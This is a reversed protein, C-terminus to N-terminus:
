RRARSARWSPGPALPLEIRLLMAAPSLGLALASERIPAPIDSLGSHTNRVIPLLSYLFLAVIAPLTGIGLLPLMFVLLALSPMTQVIGVAALVVQGLRRRRASLIGLPLAVAIAALLSVGVLLLHERTTRWLSPAAAGARCRRRDVGLRRQLWAAAAQRERRRELKVRANLAIMAPADIAGGATAAGRLGGPLRARADLRYVLVAQYDPFHHRDDALVRLHYARIEADTAYLDTVDLSGEALARYALDHELGRVDQQPLQYRDRLGPWGDRRSM